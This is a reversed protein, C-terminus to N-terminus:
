QGPETRIFQDIYDNAWQLPDSQIAASTAKREAAKLRRCRIWQWWLVPRWGRDGDYVWSQGCTCRWFTGRPYPTPVRMPKATAWDEPRM